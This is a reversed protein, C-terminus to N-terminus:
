TRDVLTGPVGSRAQLQHRSRPMFNPVTHTALIHPQLPTEVIVNTRPRYGSYIERILDSGSAHGARWKESRAWKRGAKNMAELERGRIRRAFLVFTCAPTTYQSCSVKTPWWGNEVM